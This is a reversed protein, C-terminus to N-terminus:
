QFPNKHQNIFFECVDVPPLIAEVRHALNGVGKRRKVLVAFQKM